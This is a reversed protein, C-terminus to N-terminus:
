AGKGAVFVGREHKKFRARDGKAGIERIIASYLTAAPTKGGPSKWLGRSEMAAVMETPRMPVKSASLVRAAADIASLRKPKGPAPAPATAPVPATAKGRARKAPAASQAVEDVLRRGDGQDSQDPKHQQDGDLRAQIEAIAQKRLRDSRAAGEARAASTSMKGRASTKAAPPKTGTPNTGPSKSSTTKSAATKTM